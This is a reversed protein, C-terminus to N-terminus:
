GAALPAVAVPASAAAQAARVQALKDDVLRCFEDAFLGRDRAWWVQVLPSGLWSALAREQYLRWPKLSRGSTRAAEWGAQFQAFVGNLILTLRLDDIAAAPQGARGLIEGLMPDLGLPMLYGTAADAQAQQTSIRLEASNHRIELGVYVLTVVVAIASIVQAINSADQLTM